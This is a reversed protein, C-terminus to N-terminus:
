PQADRKAREVIRGADSMEASTDAHEGVEAIVAPDDEPTIVVVAKARKLVMVTAFPVVYAGIKPNEHLCEEPRNQLLSDHVYAVEAMPTNHTTDAHLFALADIAADIAEGIAQPTLGTSDFTAARDSNDRRWRNYKILTLLADKTTM